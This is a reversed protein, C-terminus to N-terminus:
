RQEIVDRLMVDNCSKRNKACSLKMQGLPELLVGTTEYYLEKNRENWYVHCNQINQKGENKAVHVHLGEIIHSTFM